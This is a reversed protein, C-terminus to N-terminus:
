QHGWKALVARAFSLAERTIDTGEVFSSPFAGYGNDYVLDTMCALLLLEEDTPAVAVPEPQPVSNLEALVMSAMESAVEDPDGYYGEVTADHGAMYGSRIGVAVLRLRESGSNIVSVVVPASQALAARADEVAQFLAQEHHDPWKGGHKEYAEVLRQLESRFDPNTM